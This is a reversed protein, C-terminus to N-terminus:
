AARRGIGAFHDRLAQMAAIAGTFQAQDTCPADLASAVAKPHMGSLEAIRANRKTPTLGYLSPQRQLIERECDDRAIKLLRDAGGSEWHFYGSARLHDLLRRRGPERVPAVPGFRPAIWWLWLGIFLALSALAFSAHEELWALLSPAALPRRVLVVRRNAETDQALQWAFDAHDARALNQNTLPQFSPLVTIVGRGYQIQVLNTSHDGGAL